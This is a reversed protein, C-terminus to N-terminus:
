IWVKIVKLKLALKRTMKTQTCHKKKKKKKKQSTQTKPILTSATAISNQIGQKKAYVKMFFFFFISLNIFLQM